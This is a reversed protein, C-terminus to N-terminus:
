ADEAVAEAVHEITEAAFGKRALARAARAGHGLDAVLRTARAEEPELQAVAEAVLESPLGRRELDAWIAADGLGREALRVARNLAVRRDDLYRADRLRGLVEKRTEGPV